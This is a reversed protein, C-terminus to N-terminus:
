DRTPSAATWPATEMHAGFCCRRAEDSFVPEGPRYVHQRARHPIAAAAAGAASLHLRALCCGRLMVDFPDDCRMDIPCHAWRRGQASAIVKQERWRVALHSPSALCFARSGMSGYVTEIRKYVVVRVKVVEAAM